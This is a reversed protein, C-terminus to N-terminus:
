DDCDKLLYPNNQMFRTGFKSLIEGNLKSGRYILEVKKRIKENYWEDVQKGKIMEVMELTADMIEEPTNKVLEIGFHTFDDSHTFRGIGSDIISKISLYKKTKIYRIKKFITIDMPFTPFYEIHSYNVIVLPKRFLSPLADYGTATSICFECKYAMYVDMFDTRLNEFAYDIVMSNNKACALPKEVVVGMRIVYFGLEVLKLIVLEYDEINSNRYNHYNWDVSSNAEIKQKELYASDRVTLCVFKSGKKIGLKRLEVGGREKEKKTFSLNPNPCVTPVLNLIDKDHSRTEPIEHVRGGPIKKNLLFVPYIMWKPMIYIERGWMKTLQANCSKTRDCWIDLVRRDITNIGAKKECLYMDINGAYHGIRWSVLWGLRIILVPRVLRMVVLLFFSLPLLLIFWFTDKLMSLLVYVKRKIEFM